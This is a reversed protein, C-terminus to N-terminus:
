KVTIVVYVETNEGNELAFYPKQEGSYSSGQPAKYEARFCGCGEWSAGYWGYFLNSTDEILAVDQFYYSSVRPWLIFFPFTNFFKIKAGIMASENGRLLIWAKSLLM